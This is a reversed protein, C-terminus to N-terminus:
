DLRLVVVDTKGECVSSIAEEGEHIEKEETYILRPSTSFMDSEDYCAFSLRERHAMQGHHEWLFVSPAMIGCCPLQYSQIASPHLWWNRPRSSAPRRNPLAVSTDRGESSFVTKGSSLRTIGRFLSSTLPHQQLYFYGSAHARTTSGGGSTGQKSSRNENTFTSAPLTDSPATSFCHSLFPHYTAEEATLREVPNWYLCGLLFDARSLYHSASVGGSSSVEVDEAISSIHDELQAKTSQTTPKGQQAASRCNQRGSCVDMYEVLDESVAILKKDSVVVAMPFLHTLFQLQDANEWAISAPGVEGTPSVICSEELEERQKRRRIATQNLLSIFQKWCTEIQKTADADEDSLMKETEKQQQQLGKYQKWCSKITALFTEDPMGLLHVANDLLTFDDEASLFLTHGSMVEYLVCGISWMDIAETYPLRLAMEPCRYSPSQLPFIACPVGRKFTKAHGFDILVVQSTSSANITSISSRRQGDSERPQLPLSLSQSSSWAPSNGDCGRTSSTVAATSVSASYVHPPKSQIGTHSVGASPPTHMSRRVSPPSPPISSAAMASTSCNLARSPSRCQQQQYNHHPVDSLGYHHARSERRRLERISPTKVLHQPPPSLCEPGSSATFSSHSIAPSISPCGCIPSLSASDEMPVGPPQTVTITTTTSWSSPPHPAYPISPLQFSSPDFTSTREGGEVEGQSSCQRQLMDCFGGRRGTFLINELKIDGHLVGAECHLFVMSRIVQATLSQQIPLPFGHLLSATREGASTGDEGADIDALQTDLSQRLSPEEDFRETASNRRLELVDRLSMGLLPFVLVLHGRFDFHDHPLSVSAYSLATLATSIPSMGGGDDLSISGAIGRQVAEAMKVCVDLEAEAAKRYAEERRVIKLACIWESSFPHAAHDYAKVVVSFNGFGLVEVVEYRFAIHMGVMVPFYSPVHNLVAGGTGVETTSSESTMGCATRPPVAPGCYYVQQYDKM